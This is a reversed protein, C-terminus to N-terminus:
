HVNFMLFGTVLCQFLIVITIRDLKEKEATWQKFSTNQKISMLRTMLVVCDDMQKMVKSYKINQLM